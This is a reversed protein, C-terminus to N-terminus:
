QRTGTVPIVGFGGTDVQATLSDGEVKGTYTMTMEGQPTTLKRKFSFNQGDVMVDIIAGPPSPPAAPAGEIPVDKIDISYSDGASAITMTSKFTGFDTVAQTDWTGLLPSSQAFGPVAMLSAGAVLAAFRIKKLM